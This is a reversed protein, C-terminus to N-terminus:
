PKSSIMSEITDRDYGPVIKLGVPLSMNHPNLGVATHRQEKQEYRQHPLRPLPGLRPREKPIRQALVEWM